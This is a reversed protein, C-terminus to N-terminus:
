PQTYRVWEEGEGVILVGDPMYLEIAGDHLVRAMSADALPAPLPTFHGDRWIGVGSGPVLVLLRGGNLAGITGPSVAVPFGEGAVAGGPALRWVRTPAEAVAWADRGDPSLRLTAGAGLAPRLQRWNAGDDPSYWAYTDLGEHVLKWGGGDLPAPVFFNSRDDGTRRRYTRGGDDTQWLAEDPTSVGIVLSDPGLAAIGPRGREPLEPTDVRTWTRGGDGSRGLFSECADGPRCDSFLVWGHARDVFQVQM